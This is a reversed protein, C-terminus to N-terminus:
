GDAQPRPTTIAERCFANLRAPFREDTHIFFHGGDLCATEARPFIDTWAFVEDPTTEDDAGALVLTRIAALAPHLRPLTFREGVAFDARIIPMFLQMIAADNLLERPTGGLKRLHALFADDPLENIPDAVPSAGPPARGSLVMGAPPAMGEHLLRNALAFAMLSGNSHGFFVYPKDLLPGIAHFLHEVLEDMVQVPPEAMRMARGPLQAAHLEIMPDLTSRWHAYSSASGGSYPFAFLKLASAAAPRLSLFWPSAPALTHPHQM